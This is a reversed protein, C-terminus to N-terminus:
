TLLLMAYGEEGTSEGAFTGLGGPSSFPLYESFAM